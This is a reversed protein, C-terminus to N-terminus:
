GNAAVKRYGPMARLRALLASSKLPKPAPPRSMEIAERHMTEFEYGTAAWFQAPTWGLRHALGLM